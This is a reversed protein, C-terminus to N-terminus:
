DGDMSISVLVGYKNFLKCFQETLLVGNTQVSIVLEIKDFFRTYIEDLLREIRDLGLLLPEGGHLIFQFSMLANESIYEQVRVLANQLTQQQMFRPQSLFSLDGKNYMYCYICNLNCRSAIKLIVGEM